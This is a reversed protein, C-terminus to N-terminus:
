FVSGFHRQTAIHPIHLNYVNAWSPKSTHLMGNQFYPQTICWKQSNTLQLKVDRKLVFIAIDSVFKQSYFVQKAYVIVQLKFVQIMEQDGQRTTTIITSLYKIHVM